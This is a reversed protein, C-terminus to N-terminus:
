GPICEYVIYYNRWEKGTSKHLRYTFGTDDLLAEWADQTLICNNGAYYYRRIAEHERQSIKGLTYDRDCETFLKVNDLTFSMRDYCCGYHGVLRMGFGFEADDISRERFRRILEGSTHRKPDFGRPILAMRTVLRGNIDLLERLMLLLRRHGSIDTLNGFVGDGLIANVREHVHENLDMWDTQIIEERERASEDLWERFLGIAGTDREACLVRQFHRSALKRLEPTMGLVLAVGFGRNSKIAVEYNAIDIEDPSAAPYRKRSKQDQIRALYTQRDWKSEM